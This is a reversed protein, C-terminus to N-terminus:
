VLGFLYMLNLCSYSLKTNINYIFLTTQNECVIDHTSVTAYIQAAVHHDKCDIEIEGRGSRTM